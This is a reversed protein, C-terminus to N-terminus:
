KNSTTRSKYWAYILEALDTEQGYTYHSLDIQNTPVIDGYTALLGKKNVVSQGSISQRLTEIKPYISEKLGEVLILDPQVAATKQLDEITQEFTRDDTTVNAHFIATNQASYIATSIAGATRFRYTDTGEVDPTFDHGDHKIAAIHLGKQTLRSILDELLTTKGTNKSGSICLIPVKKSKACSESLQLIVQVHEGAALAQAGAPIDVLCNCGIMTTVSGSSHNDPITVYGNHYHARIFRRGHKSAKPFGNKLIATERDPCYDARGCAKLLGPLVMLELTAAAAFPNGSLAAIVKGQYTAAMMPSGPKMAVGQFLIDAGMQELIAPLYDKEGVSVGGTTIVVDQSKLLEVIKTQIEDVQDKCCEHTVQMGLQKLRMTIMPGNSNYIKGPRYQEPMEVLESGTSLVGASIPRYCPITFYGQGALVAGHASTVVEGQSIIAAGKQIDEGRDCINDHAHMEKLITVQEAAEGGDFLADEQRIVCDAGWPIGAGTMIRVAEGQEIAFQFDDGAYVRRKVALKVPHEKSAGATDEARMAFGDLPSRDFPPQDQTACLTKGCVREVADWIPVEEIQSSTQLANIIIQRAEEMEIFQRSM